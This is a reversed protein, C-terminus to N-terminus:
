GKALDRAQKVWNDREIRGRFKLKEDVWAVDAESWSAIQEYRYVGLDNLKKELAPGVGSIAKLDDVNDPAAGYLKPPRGQDEPEEPAAAPTVEPMVPAASTAAPTPAVPEAPPAERGTCFLPPFLYGAALLAILGIVASVLGHLGLWYVCVTAVFLGAAFALIWCVAKCSDLMGPNRDTNM